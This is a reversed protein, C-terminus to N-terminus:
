VKQFKLYIAKCYTSLLKKSIHIWKFSKNSIQSALRTLLSEIAKFDEHIIKDTDGNTAKYSSTSTRKVLVIFKTGPRHM